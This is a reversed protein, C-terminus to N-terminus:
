TKEEAVSYILTETETFANPTKVVTSINHVFVTKNFDQMTIKISRCTGFDYGGEPDYFENLSFFGTKNIQDSLESFETQNITFTKGNYSGSGDSGIFIYSDQNDQVMDCGSSVYEIGIRGPITNQRTQFICGTFIILILLIALKRM